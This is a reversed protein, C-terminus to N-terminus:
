LISNQQNKIVNTSNSKSCDFMFDFVLFAAHKARPVQLKPELVTWQCGSSPCTLEMVSNLEGVGKSYGAVIYLGSRDPKEITSMQFMNQPLSPGEVWANSGQLIVESNDYITRGGNWGGFAITILGGHFESNFSGCGFYGRINAMTPGETWSEDTRKFYFSRGSYGSDEKIYGGIMLFSDENAVLYM